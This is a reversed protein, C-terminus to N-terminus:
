VIGLRLSFLLIFLIASLLLHLPQVFAPIHLGAMILGSAVSLLIIVLVFIGRKQIQSYSLSRWFVFICAVSLIGAIIKHADFYGNLGAIWTERNTYGAAKSIEDIQERVDTGVAIQALVILIAVTILWKLGNDNVKVPQKLKNIIIVPIAALGLALVMHGTIKVVALNSDVVIKGLWAEFVTIVLFCASLWFISRQTKYFSRFSWIIHILILFGLVGTLQRNLWEIWAHVPNYVLDIDQKNLYKQYDAPLDYISTPPIWMGFCKPWDPCGMGSQTTRVIGGALIVIFVYVLIFRTFAIYKTQVAM